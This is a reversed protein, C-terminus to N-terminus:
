DVKQVRDNSSLYIISKNRKWADQRLGGGNQQVSHKTFATIRELGTSQHKKGWAFSPHQYFVAATTNTFCTSHASIVLHTATSL